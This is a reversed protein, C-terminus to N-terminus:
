KKEIYVKNYNQLTCDCPLEYYAGLNTVKNTMETRICCLARESEMLLVEIATSQNGYLQFSRGRYIDKEDPITDRIFEYVCSPLNTVKGSGVHYMSKAYNIYIFHRKLYPIIQLSFVEL